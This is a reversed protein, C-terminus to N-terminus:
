NLRAMRDFRDFFRYYFVVLVANLLFLAGTYVWEKTSNELLPQGLDSNELYIGYLHVFVGVVLVIRIGKIWRGLNSANTRIIKLLFGSYFLIFFASDLVAFPFHPPVGLIKSDRLHQLYDVGLFYFGFIRGSWELNLLFSVLHALKGLRIGSKKLARVLLIQAIVALILKFITILMLVVSGIM